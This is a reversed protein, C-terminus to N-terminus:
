VEKRTVWLYGALLSISVGLSLVVIIDVTLQM